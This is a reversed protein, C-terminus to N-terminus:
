QVISVHIRKGPEKVTLLPLLLMLVGEHMVAETKEPDVEAPLIIQRYFSGWSCEGLIKEKNTTDFNPFHEGNPRTREGKITIVDNEGEIMVDLKELQLGAIQAYVMIM